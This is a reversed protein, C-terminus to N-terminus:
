SIAARRDGGPSQQRRFGRILLPGPSRHNQFQMRREVRRPPTRNFLQRSDRCGRFLDDFGYLSWFACNGKQLRRGDRIHHFQATVTAAACILCFSAFSRLGTVAAWGFRSTTSVFSTLGFFGSGVGFFFCAAFSLDAALGALRPWAPDPLPVASRKPDFCQPKHMARGSREPKWLM